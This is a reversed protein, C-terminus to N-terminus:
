KYAMVGFAEPKRQVRAFGAQELRRMVGRTVSAGSKSEPDGIYHFMRGHRKLVRYAQRYFAESFLDGALSMMPPDHIIVSFAEGAFREIEEYSDGVVQTIGGGAGRQGAFLEQSWPNQRCIELVVPDIEITTVHAARRAAQIATYGLGTATDLVEGGLPGIARMVEQVSRYPDTEKIRHMPIGSLILSPATPTPWLSYFRGTFESFAQIPILIASGPQSGPDAGGADAREIRFCVHTAAHIEELQAWDLEVGGAFRVGGPLLVAEQSTIGLDTSTVATTKGAKRAHLLPEAQIYSLVVGPLIAM